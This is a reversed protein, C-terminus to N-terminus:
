DKFIGAKGILWTLGYIIYQYLLALGSLLAASGALFATATMFGSYPPRYVNMYAAAPAWCLLGILLAYLPLAHLLAVFDRDPWTRAEIVIYVCAVANAMLAARMHPMFDSALSNGVLLCAMLWLHLYFLMAFYYWSRRRIM